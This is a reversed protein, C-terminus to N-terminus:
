NRERCNEALYAKAEELRALREEDAMRVPNGEPDSVIVRTSPELADRQARMAGCKQNREANAKMQEERRAARERRSQEAYSIDEPKDGKASDRATGAADPEIGTEALDSALGSTNGGSSIITATVGAPPKGGYHVVGEKDV